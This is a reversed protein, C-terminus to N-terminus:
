FGQGDRLPRCWGFHRRETFTGWNGFTIDKRPFRLICAEHTEGPIEPVVADKQPSRDRVQGAPHLLARDVWTCARHLATRVPLLAGDLFTGSGAPVRASLCPAAQEVGSQTRGQKRHDGGSERSGSVLGQLESHPWCEIDPHKNANKLRRARERERERERARARARERWSERTNHDYTVSIYSAADILHLRPETGTKCVVCVRDNGTVDSGAFVAFSVGRFVLDSRTYNQFEWNQVTRLQWPFFGPVKM